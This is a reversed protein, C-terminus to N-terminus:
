VVIFLRENKKHSISLSRFLRTEKSALPSSRYSQHNRSTQQGLLKRYGKFTTRVCLSIFSSTLRATANKRKVRRYFIMLSYVVGSRAITSPRFSSKILLKVQLEISYECRVTDKVQTKEDVLTAAISLDIKEGWFTRNKHHYQGSGSPALFCWLVFCIVEQLTNCCGFRFRLRSDLIFVPRNGLRAGFACTELAPPGPAHMQAM